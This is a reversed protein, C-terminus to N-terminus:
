LPWLSPLRLALCRVASDRSLARRRPFRSRSCSSDSRWRSHFRRGHRRTSRRYRVSRHFRSRSSSRSCRSFRRGSGCSSESDSSEGSSSRSPSSSRSHRDRAWRLELRLIQRIQDALGSVRLHSRSSRDRAPTGVVFSNAYPAGNRHIQRPCIEAETFGEFPSGDSDSM